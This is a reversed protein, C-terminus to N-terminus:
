WCRAGRCRATRGHACSSSCRPSAPAPIGAGDQLERAARRALAAGIVRHGSAEWADRAAALAFTKGTGAQGVVMAVGAGAGAGTLRRVMAAQEGAITPRRAIAREVVAPRVVGLRAERRGTAHDLVRRCRSAAVTVDEVVDADTLATVYGALTSPAAPVHLKRGQGSM